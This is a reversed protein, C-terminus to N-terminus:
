DSASEIACIMEKSIHTVVVFLNSIRRPCSKHNIEMNRNLSGIQKRYVHAHTQLHFIYKISIKKPNKPTLM